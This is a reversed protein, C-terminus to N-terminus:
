EVMKLNLERSLPRGYAAGYRDNPTMCFRSSMSTHLKMVNGDKRSTQPYRDYVSREVFIDNKRCKVPIARM